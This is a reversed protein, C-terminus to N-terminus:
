MHAIIIVNKLAYYDNMLITFIMRAFEIYDEHRVSEWKTDYNMSVKKDTSFM